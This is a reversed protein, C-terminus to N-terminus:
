IEGRLWKEQQEPTLKSYDLEGDVNLKGTPASGPLKGIDKGAEVINFKAMLQKTVEATISPTLEAAIQTRMSATDPTDVLKSLVKFLKPAEKGTSGIMNRITDESFGEGLLLEEMQPAKEFFDPVATQIDREMDRRLMEDRLDAIQQQLVGVANEPDELIMARTDLKPEAPQTKRLADLEASLKQRAKREEHLAALPVVKPEPKPPPEEKATAPPTEAHIEAAEKTEPVTETTVVSPAAETTTTEPASEEGTLEAETFEIEQQTEAM